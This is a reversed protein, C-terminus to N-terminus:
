AAKNEKEDKDSGKKKKSRQQAIQQRIGKILEQRRSAMLKTLTMVAIFGTGAFLVVDWADMGFM